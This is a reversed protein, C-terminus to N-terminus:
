KTLVINRTGRWTGGADRQINVVGTGGVMNVIGSLYKENVLDDDEFVFDSIWYMQGDDKKIAAHIHAPMSNDPYRAPRITQIRYYGNSDTKCWGHLRGHWKQAGTETGSKSYYGKSDTHYAYITIGPYPTSGDAKYVFGSIILKDGRDNTGAITMTNTLSAPMNIFSCNISADPSDCTDAVVQPDPKSAQRPSTTEGCSFLVIFLLALCLPSM